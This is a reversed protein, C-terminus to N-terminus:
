EVDDTAPVSFLFSLQDWSLCKAENTQKARKQPSGDSESPAREHSKHIAEEVTGAVIFRHVTTARLQSMRHVRGVAQAEVASNLLPEVLFVHQAEVLNLGNAGRSLPLLLARMDGCQRFSALTSELNTQGHLRCFRIDNARFAKELLSLM